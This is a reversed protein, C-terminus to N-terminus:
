CLLDSYSGQQEGRNAQHDVDAGAPDIRKQILKGASEKIKRLAETVDVELLGRVYHKQSGLKGIDFIFQRSPPNQIIHTADKQM